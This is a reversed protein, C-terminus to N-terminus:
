NDECLTVINHLKQSKYPQLTDSILMFRNYTQFNIIKAICPLKNFQLINFM